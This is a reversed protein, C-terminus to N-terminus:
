IEDNPSQTRRATPPPRSSPTTVTREPRRHRPPANSRPAQTGAKQPRHRWWETIKGAAVSTSTSSSRHIIVILRYLLGRAPETIGNQCQPNDRRRDIVGITGRQRNGTGRHLTLQTQPVGANLIRLPGPVRYACDRRGSELSAAHTPDPRFRLDVNGRTNRFDHARCSETHRDLPRQQDNQAGGPGAPWV